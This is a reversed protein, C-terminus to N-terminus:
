RWFKNPEILIDQSRKSSLFLKICILSNVEPFLDLSWPKFAMAMGSRIGSGAVASHVSMKEEKLIDKLHESNYREWNRRVAGCRRAVPSPVLLGLIVPSTKMWGDAFTCTVALTINKEQINGCLWSPGKESNNRLLIQNSFTTVTIWLAQSHM